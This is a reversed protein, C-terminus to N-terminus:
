RGMDTKSTCEYEEEYEATKSKRICHAIIDLIIDRCLERVFRDENGYPKPLFAGEGSEREEEGHVKEAEHLFGEYENRNKVGNEIKLSPVQQDKTTTVPTCDVNGSM